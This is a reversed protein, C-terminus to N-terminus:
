PKYQWVTGRFGNGGGYTTGYLSGKATHLVEGSPYQDGDPDYYFSHLLTFRGRPSVKWLTGQNSGGCSYADGYLNGKSDLVVGAYPNCGDYGVFNHLITEHGSKSVKWVTGDNASGCGNTTGYFNGQKDMAVSGYPYCGDPSSYFKHLLKLKGASSLQYLVGYSAFSGGKETVGYLNGSQDLLLHGYYPYAGDRPGGAFNHLITEKGTTDIKFVTGGGRSGCGWTTGYLNGAKDAIVGQYPNCGDSTGGAFEHLTTENGSPDLKFVTGCGNPYCNDSGGASATGYLNGESDRILPAYPFAGDTYDFNHLVTENGAADVEFVVGYNYAGASIATGYFNGSKDQIVAAWPFQGSAGGPITYLTTFTGAQAPTALATVGLLALMVIIRGSHESLRM